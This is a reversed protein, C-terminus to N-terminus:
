IELVYINIFINIESIEILWKVIEFNGHYVAQRFAKEDKAHIDIDITEFIRKAKKLNGESCAEIFSM